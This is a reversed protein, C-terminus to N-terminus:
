VREAYSVGEMIRDAIRWAYRAEEEYFAVWEPWCIHDGATALAVAGYSYLANALETDTMKGAEAHRAIDAFFRTLDRDRYM